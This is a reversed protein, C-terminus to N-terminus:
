NNEYANRQNRLAKEIFNFNRMRNLKEVFIDPIFKEMEPVTDAFIVNAKSGVSYVRISPFLDMSFNYILLFIFAIVTGKALGILAGIGRTIIGKSKDRLVRNSICLVIKILLYLSIFVEIYTLAYNNNIYKIKFFSIISPTYSKTLMINLFLGFMSIFEVYMGNTAGTLIALLLIVCVIIDLYM